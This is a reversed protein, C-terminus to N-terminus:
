FTNLVSNETLINLNQMQLANGQSLVAPYEVLMGPKVDTATKGEVNTITLLQIQFKSPLLALIAQFTELQKESAARHLATNRRKNQIKLLDYKQQQPLDTMLYTVISLYGRYAAIHLPTDGNGDQIELVDYIKNSPFGDLMYRIIEQHYEFVAEHLGTWASYEGRVNMLVHYRADVSATQLLEELRRKTSKRDRSKDNSLFFSMALQSFLSRRDIYDRLVTELESSETAM